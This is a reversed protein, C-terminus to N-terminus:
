EHGGEDASQQELPALLDSLTLRVWESATRRELKAEAEIAAFLEDDIRMALRKTLKTTTM